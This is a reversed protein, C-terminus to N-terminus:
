YLDLLTSLRHLSLIRSGWRIIPVGSSDLNVKSVDEKNSTDGFVFKTTDGIITSIVPLGKRISSRCDEKDHHLGLRGINNYFNIIGREPNIHSAKGEDIAFEWVMVLFLYAATLEQNLNRRLEEQRPSSKMTHTSAYMPTWQPFDKQEPSSPEVIKRFAELVASAWMANEYNPRYLGISCTCLHLATGALTSKSKLSSSDKRCFLSTDYIDSNLDHKQLVRWSQGEESGRRTIAKNFDVPSLYRRNPELFKHVTHTWTM